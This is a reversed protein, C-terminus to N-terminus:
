GIIFKYLIFSMISLSIFPYIRDYILYSIKSIPYILLRFSSIGVLTYFYFHLSSFCGCVIWVWSLVRMLYYIVDMKSFSDLSREKFKMDLLARNNIYYFENLIFLISLIYFINNIM